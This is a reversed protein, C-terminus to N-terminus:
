VVGRMSLGSHRQRRHDATRTVIYLQGPKKERSNEKEQTRLGFEALIPHTAKPKTVSLRQSVCPGEDAKATSQGSCNMRGTTCHLFVMGERPKAWWSLRHAPTHRKSGARSLKLLYILDLPARGSWLTSRLQRFALPAVEILLGRCGARM